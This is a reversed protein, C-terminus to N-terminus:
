LYPRQHSEYRRSQTPNATSKAYDPVYREYGRVNFSTLPFRPPFSGPGPYRYPGQAQYGPDLQSIMMLGVVCSVM